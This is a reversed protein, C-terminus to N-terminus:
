ESSFGFAPISPQSIITKIEEYRREAEEIVLESERSGLKRSTRRINRQYEVNKDKSFRDALYFWIYAESYNRKVGRGRYYLRALEFKAEIVAKNAAKQYWKAAEKYDRKVHYGDQYLKGVSYQAMPFGNEASRFYYEVGKEPNRIVGM